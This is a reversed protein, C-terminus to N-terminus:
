TDANHHVQWTGLVPLDFVSDRVARGPVITSSSTSTPQTPRVLVVECPARGLLVRGTAGVADGPLRRRQGIGVVIVDVDEHEAVRLITDAFSRSPLLYAKLPLHSARVLDGAARLAQRGAAEQQPLRADIPLTAPLAFLYLLVIQGDRERGLRCAVELASGAPFAEGIPVLVRAGLRRDCPPARAIPATDRALWWAVGMTGAVVLLALLGGILNASVDM